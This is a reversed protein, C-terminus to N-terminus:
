LGPDGKTGGSKVKPNGGTNSQGRRDPSGGQGRSGLSWGFGLSSKTATASEVPALEGSSLLRHLCFFFCRRGLFASNFTVVRPRPVSSETHVFLPDALLELEIALEWESPSLPNPDLRWTVSVSGCVLAGRWALGSAWHSGVSTMSSAGSLSRPSVLSSM